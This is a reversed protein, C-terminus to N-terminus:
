PRVETGALAATVAAARSTPVNMVLQQRAEPM